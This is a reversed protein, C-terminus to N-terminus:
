FRFQASVSAHKPSEGSTTSAPAILAIYEKQKEEALTAFAAIQEKTYTKSGQDTMVVITPDGALRIYIARYARAYAYAAAAKDKVGETLALPMSGYAQTLYLDLRTGLSDGKDSPFLSPELEGKPQILDASRLM